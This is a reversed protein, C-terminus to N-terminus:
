GFALLPSHKPLDRTGPKRGMLFTLTTTGPTVRGPPSLQKPPVIDSTGVGQWLFAGLHM